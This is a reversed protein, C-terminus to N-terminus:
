SIAAMSGIIEFKVNDRYRCCRRNTVLIEFNM